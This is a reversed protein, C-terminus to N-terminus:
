EDVGGGQKRKQNLNETSCTLHGHPNLHNLLCDFALRKPNRFFIPQILRYNCFVRITIAERWRGGGVGRDGM